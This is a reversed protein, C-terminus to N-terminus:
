VEATRPIDEDSEKIPNNQRYHKIGEELEDIDETNEVLAAYKIRRIVEPLSFAYYQSMLPNIFLTEGETRPHINYNGFHGGISSTVLYTVISAAPDMRTQLYAYADMYGRVEAMSRLLSICGLFGNAATLEAIARLTSCDSVGHYRDAGIGLCMLMANCGLSNVAFMSMMDETPTGLQHEDGAMLSDSGGDVLVILDIHFRSILYRYAASIHSIGNKRFAYIPLESGLSRFWDCLYKEPFYAGAPTTNHTLNSDATVEYLVPSRAGDAERVLVQADSSDLASFTLNGLLVTKGMGKLKFYLPLAQLFDFGGACGSLLVVNAAELWDWLPLRLGTGVYQEMQYPPKAPPISSNVRNFCTFSRALILCM